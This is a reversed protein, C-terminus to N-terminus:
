LTYGKEQAILEIEMLTQWADQEAEKLVEVHKYKKYEAEAEYWVHVAWNYAMQYIKEEEIM